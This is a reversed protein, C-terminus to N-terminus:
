FMTGDVNFHLRSQIDGSKRRDLKQISRRNDSRPKEVMTPLVIVSLKAM